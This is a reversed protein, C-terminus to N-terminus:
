RAVDDLHNQFAASAALSSFHGRSVWTCTCRAMIGDDEITVVGGVLRHETPPADYATLMALMPAFRSEIAYHDVLVACNPHAGRLMMTPWHFNGCSEPTDVSITTDDPLMGRLMRAHDANAAIVYVARGEAQLRKAHEIMRTTRGTGRKPDDSM